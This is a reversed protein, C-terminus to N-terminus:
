IKIDRTIKRGKEMKKGIYITKTISDLIMSCHMYLYYYVYLTIQKLSKQYMKKKKKRDKQKKM